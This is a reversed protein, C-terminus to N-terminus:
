VNDDEGSVVERGIAFIREVLVERLQVTYRRNATYLAEGPGNLQSLMGKERLQRFVTSVLGELTHSNKRQQEPRSEPKVLISQWGPELEKPIGELQGRDERAALEACISKLSSLALAESVPPANYTEDNLKESTPYFLAGVAVHILVALARSEPNSLGPMDGLRYAFISDPGDPAFFAGDRGVSLVSLGLGAAVDQILVRFAPTADYLALISRYDRDNVPTLRPQLGKNILLAAAYADPSFESNTM